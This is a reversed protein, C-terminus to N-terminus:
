KESDKSECGCGATEKSCCGKGNNDADRFPDDPDDILVNVILILTVIMTGGIMCVLVNENKGAIGIWWGSTYLAILIACLIRILTKKRNKRLIFKEYEKLLEQNIDIVSEKKM